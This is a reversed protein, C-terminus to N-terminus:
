QLQEAQRKICDHHPADKRLFHNQCRDCSIMLMKCNKKHEEFDKRKMSAQCDACTVISEPCHKCVDKRINYQNCKPCTVKIEPCSARHMSNDEQLHAQHCYPCKRLSKPCERYHNMANHAPSIVHDCGLPCNVEKKLCVSKHEGILKEYTMIKKCRCVVLHQALMSRM